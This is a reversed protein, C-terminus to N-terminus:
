NSKLGPVNKIGSGSKAEELKQMATEVLSKSENGLGIVANCQPCAFQVGKMLQHVDFPIKTSCVPCPIGGDNAIM